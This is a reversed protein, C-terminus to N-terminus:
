DMQSSHGKTFSLGSVVAKRFTAFCTHICSLMPIEIASYMTNGQPIMSWIRFDVFSSHTPGSTFILCVESSDWLLAGLEASAKWHYPPPISQPLGSQIVMCPLTLVSLLYGSSDAHANIALQEFIIYIWQDFQEWPPLVQLILAKSLSTPPPTWGGGRCCPEQLEPYEEHKTCDKPDRVPDQAMSGGLWSECLMCLRFKNSQGQINYPSWADLGRSYLPRYCMLVSETGRSKMYWKCFLLALVMGKLSMRSSNLELASIFRLPGRRIHSLHHKGKSQAM